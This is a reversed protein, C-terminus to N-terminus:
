IFYIVFHVQCWSYCTSGRCPHLDNRNRMAIVALCHAEVAGADQVEAVVVPALALLPRQMALRKLSKQFRALRCYMEDRADVGTVAVVADAAIEMNGAVDVVADGTAQIVNNM